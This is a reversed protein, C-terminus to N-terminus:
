GNVALRYRFRTGHQLSLNIEEASLEEPFYSGSIKAGAISAGELRTQRLDIGRLDAQHLRCDRMDLGAAELGHLDAHRLDTGRLDCSEGARRRRNFEEIYGDALLNVM